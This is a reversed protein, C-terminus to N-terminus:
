RASRGEPLRDSRRERTDNRQFVDDTHVIGRMITYVLDRNTQGDRKGKERERERIISKTLNQIKVDRRDCVSM